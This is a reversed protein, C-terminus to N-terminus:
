TAMCVISLTNNLIFVSLGIWRRLRGTSPDNEYLNKKIM